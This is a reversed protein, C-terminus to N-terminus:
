RTDSGLIVVFEASNSQIANDPLSDVAITGFRQELYRKTYKKQGHTLDVLITRSYSRGNPANDITGINYGYSKLEDAKETALGVRDTGNLVMVNANENKLYGDRLINRIYSHIENYNDAGAKPLVVSLGGFITTTLYDNPPNVLDISSIKNSDIQQFIEKLRATDSLSFDTQIHSGFNDLLQAVKAPNTFTDASLIKDKLAVIMLRQRESRDFDGKESTYRSRAYALAEHGDFHKEGKKVNLYYPQGDILMQERVTKPVDVDLGGVTDIAKKFGTFDVMGRYHIPIGLVEEVTSKALDYGNETARKKVDDNIESSNNLIQSKGTYFVQNIKMAGGDPVTVYLDRPISVIGAENNVPDISVIIMTDTLDPAEGGEGARGMLLVNVRGDGEGRLQSPDVNEQLAAAGGGGSFINKLYGYGFIGLLLIAACSAGAIKMRRKRQAKKDLRSVGDLQPRREKRKKGFPLKKFRGGENDPNNASAPNPRKTDHLVSSTQTARLGDPKKFDDIRRASVQPTPRSIPRNFGISGSPKRSGRSSIGDLSQPQNRRANKNTFNEM